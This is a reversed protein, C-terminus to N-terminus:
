RQGLTMRSRRGQEAPIAKRSATFSAQGAAQAAPQARGDVYADFRDDNPVVHVTLSQAVMGAFAQGGSRATQVQGRATAVSSEPAGSPSGSGRAGGGGGAGKLGLSALLALMGAVVPFAFPGLMEFMKAAGAAASAAGRALSNGISSATVQGDVIMTQIMMALQVMRYAQEAAQLVRYGDSGEKFFGKAAGLMDGYNQVQAMAREREAQMSSLRHENEALNIEALRSQYGSMATLLDGLARGSEGFASALGNATDQALGDILRMEDAILKLPNLLEFSAARLPELDRAVPVQRLTEHAARPQRAAHSGGREATADGAEERIRSEAAGRIAASIAALQRDVMAAGEQAGAAFERMMDRGAQRAAGANRNSFEALDVSGLFSMGNAASFAPFIVALQKAAGIVVNIGQVAGNIIAEVARITANAASVAIDGMVAPLDSWVAKIARYSGIFGGTIAKTGSILARTAVDMANTFWDGIQTVAPGVKDWIIDRLYSLTGSLVDGMTVGKNQVKELQKETLGMGATLDGFERNLARTSLALTGGILAAAAGVAAILPLFPAMARWTASAMANMAATVSTGARIAAQQFVDFIQPGQQIAILFPNMGMAMQVGVDTMQRSMNLGEAATLGMAGRTANLVATQQRVAVNMTSAAGDARRAAMALRDTANEARGAAGAMGDLRDEAIEAQESQIKLGLTALDTM